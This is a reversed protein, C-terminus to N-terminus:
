GSSSVQNSGTVYGFLTLEIGSSSEFPFNVPSLQNSVDMLCPELFLFLRGWYAFYLTLNSLEVVQLLGSHVVASTNHYVHHYLHPYYDSFHLYDIRVLKFFLSLLFPYSCSSPGLVPQLMM